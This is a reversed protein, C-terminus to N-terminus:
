GGCTVRLSFPLGWMYYTINLERIGHMSADTLIVLQYEGASRAPLVKDWEDEGIQVIDGQMPYVQLELSEADILCDNRLRINYAIFQYQTIDGLPEDKFVTGVLAHNQSQRALTDFLEPQSAAEVHVAGTAEVVVMSTMYMVGIGGISLILAVVLFIALYKM